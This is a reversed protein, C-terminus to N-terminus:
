TPRTHPIPPLRRGEVSTMCSICSHRAKSSMTKRQRKRKPARQRMCACRGKVLLAPIYLRVSCLSESLARKCARLPFNQWELPITSTAHSFKWSLKTHANGLILWAGVLVGRHLGVRCQGLQFGLQCPCVAVEGLVDGHVPVFLAHEARM